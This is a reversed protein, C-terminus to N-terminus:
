SVFLSTAVAALTAAGAGLLLAEVMAARFAQTIIPQMGDMMGNMTTANPGMMAVVLRDFLTPALAVIAVVMTVGGVAIVLLHALFLKARLSRWINSFISM